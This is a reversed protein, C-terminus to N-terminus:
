ATEFGRGGRGRHRDFPRLRDVGCGRAPWLSASSPPPRSQQKALFPRVPTRASTAGRPPAGLPLFDCRGGNRSLRDLRLRDEALDLWSLPRPAPAGFPM